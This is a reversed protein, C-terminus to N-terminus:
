EGSVPGEYKSRIRDGDRWQWYHYRNDNIEKVTLTAKSPVDEPTDEPADGDGGPGDDDGGDDATERHDALAVAYEAADRLADPPCAELREVLDDPLSEPPTPPM